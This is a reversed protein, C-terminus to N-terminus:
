CHNTKPGSNFNNYRQNTAGHGGFTWYTTHLLPGFEATSNGGFNNITNPLTDGIGYACGSATAVTSFYPYFAASTGDDSM